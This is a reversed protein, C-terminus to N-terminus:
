ANVLAIAFGDHGKAGVTQLATATVRTSQSLLTLADLSGRASPDSDPNLIGGARVVNDIIIISGPRTLRLAWDFYAANNPKDADIFVLDYPARTDTVTAALTPLTQLAPGLHLDIRDSMGAAAFNHAAVKAFAPNIELTTVRGGPGLARAFWITSYGGLAGFELVRKAAHIRTLLSLFKGQTPSVAIRPLGAADCRALVQAMTDDHGHLTRELLDDVDTWLQQHPDQTTMTSYLRSLYLPPSLALFFAPGQPDAKPNM